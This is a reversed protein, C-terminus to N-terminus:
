EGHKGRAHRACSIPYSWAQSSNARVSGGDSMCVRELFTALTGPLAAAQWPPYGAGQTGSSSIHIRACIQRSLHKGFLGEWESHECRRESIQLGQSTTVRRHEPSPKACPRGGVILRHVSGYEWEGGGRGRWIPDACGRMDRQPLDALEGAIKLEALFVM